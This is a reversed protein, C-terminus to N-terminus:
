FSMAEKSEPINCTINKTFFWDQLWVWFEKYTFEKNQMWETSVHGNVIRNWLVWLVSFGLGVAASNNTSCECDTVTAMYLGSILPSILTTCKLLILLQIQIQCPRCSPSPAKIRYSCKLNSDAKTSNNATSEKTTLAHLYSHLKKKHGLNQYIM